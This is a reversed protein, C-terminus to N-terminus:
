RHMLARLVLKGAVAKADNITSPPTFCLWQIVMAKQLSQLRHQEAVDSSKDHKGAGIERSRSLIRFLLFIQIYSCNKYVINCLSLLVIFDGRLSKKLVAKPITKPLFHYISSLQFFSRTDSMCAISPSFAFFLIVCNFM